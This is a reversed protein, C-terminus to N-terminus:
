IENKQMVSVYKYLKPYKPRSSVFLFFDFMQSSATSQKKLQVQHKIANNIKINKYVIYISSLKEFYLKKCNWIRRIAHDSVVFSSRLFKSYLVIMLFLRQVTKGDLASTWEKTVLQGTEINVQFM